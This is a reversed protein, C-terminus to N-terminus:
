KSVIEKNDNLHSELIPDDIFSWVINSYIMQFAITGGYFGELIPDHLNKSFPVVTSWLILFTIFVPLDSYQLSRLFSEKHKTNSKYLKYNVVCFMLTGLCLLGLTIDRSGYVITDISFTDLKISIKEAVSLIVSFVISAIGIILAIISGRLATKDVDSYYFMRLYLIITYILTMLVSALEFGKWYNGFYDLMGFIIAAPLFLVIYWNKKCYKKIITINRILFIAIYIVVSALLAYRLEIVSFFVLPILTIPFVLWWIKKIFEVINKKNIFIGIFYIITSVIFSVPIPYWAYEPRNIVAYIGLCIGLFAGALMSANAWVMSPHNKLFLIGFVLPFFSIQASYFALLLNIFLQGGNDVNKDFIIFLLLGLSIIYFGFARGKKTIETYNDKILTTNKSDLLKRTTKNSDYVYTFIIGMIFSDISSLMIALVSVIFTYGLIEELINTSNILNKPIDILLDEFTFHPLSTIALLGFFVFVLWTFPSELAYTLLGKKIRENLVNSNNEDTPKISLLRQWNSLDVFQFCLPLIMLSSLGAWGFGEINFFNNDHLFVGRRATILAFLSCIALASFFIGVIINLIQNIRNDVKSAQESLKIFKFKRHVLIAIIYLSIISFSLSLVPTIEIGNNIILYIFYLLLGFVGVYSIILQLQDTRISSIQGGYIIYGYVFFVSVLIVLYFLNKDDIISLLVKSGFYTESIAFGLFAVITLWSAIIRVSNGYQEGIFGHLTIDKGIFQKYKSFCLYFLLIGIGWSITNILPVFYFRSAGWLLFPYITSVQFAYAISSSSFATNGVRKYAVFFDDPHSIEKRKISFAGIIYIILPLIIILSGIM